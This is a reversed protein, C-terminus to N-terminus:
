DKYVLNERTELSDLLVLAARPDRRVLYDLREQLALPVQNERREKLDLPDENARRELLELRDQPDLLEQNVQHGQQDMPDQNESPVRLEGRAEDDMIM